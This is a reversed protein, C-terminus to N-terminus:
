RTSRRSFYSAQHRIFREALEAEGPTMALSETGAYAALLLVTSPKLFVYRIVVSDPGACYVLDRIHETVPVVEGGEPCVTIVIQISQLDDDTLGLETFERLFDGDEVFALTDEIGLLRHAAMSMEVTVRDVRFAM